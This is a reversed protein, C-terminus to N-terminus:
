RTRERERGRACARARTSHNLRGWGSTSQAGRRPISQLASCMTRSLFPGSELSEKCVQRPYFPRFSGEAAAANGNRSIIGLCLHLPLDGEPLDFGNTQIETGKAERRSRVKHRMLVFRFASFRVAGNGQWLQSVDGVTM